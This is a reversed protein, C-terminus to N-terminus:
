HTLKNIVTLMRLIMSNKNLLQSFINKFESLFTTLQTTINTSNHDNNSTADVPVGTMAKTYSLTNSRADNSVAQQQKTLTTRGISRREYLFNNRNRSLILDRYVKCGKYNAPHRGNCLFWTPSTDLNYLKSYQTARRMECLKLAKLLQNKHPWLKPVTYM